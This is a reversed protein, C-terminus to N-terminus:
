TGPARLDAGGMMQLPGGPPQWEVELYSLGGSWRYQVAVPYRGPRLTVSGGSEQAGGGLAPDFLVRTHGVTLTTLGSANVAFRYRGPRRVTLLTSWSAQFPSLAAFSQAANRFGLVSDRRELVIGAPGTAGLPRITGKWVGGIHGDWLSVPQISTMASGQGSWHLRAPSTPETLHAVFTLAHLGRALRTPARGNSTVLSGDIALRAGGSALFRYLGDVPVNLNGSWTATVPYRLGAPPNQLPGLGVSPVRERVPVGDATLYTVQVTRHANLVGAPVFYAILPQMQHEPDGLHVVVKHGGPYFAQLLPVYRDMPPWVLFAAPRNAGNDVVPLADSPNIVDEGTADHNIFRNDGHWWYLEPTGLDYYHYAYGTQQVFLAQATVDTSTHTHLFHDIYMHWNEGAPVAVAAALAVGSALRGASLATSLPLLRRAAALILVAFHDLVAAILMPMVILVGMIRPVNPADVTLVGGILVSTWFLISLMALRADRWRWLAWALGLVILVAELPQAIPYDLISIASSDVNYTILALTRQLQDWVITRWDATGYLATLDAHHLWIFRDNPYDTSRLPYAVYFAVFPAAIAGAAVIYALSHTWYARLFQRNMLAFYAICALIM